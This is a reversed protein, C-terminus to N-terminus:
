HDDDAASDDALLPLRDLNDYATSDDVASARDPDDDDNAFDDCTSSM